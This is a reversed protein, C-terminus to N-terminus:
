GTEKLEYYLGGDSSNIEFDYLCDDNLQYMNGDDFDVKFEPTAANLFEQIQTLIAYSTEKSSEAQESYYRANDTDEGSRSGTGGHAYSEAETAFGKLEDKTNNFEEIASDFTGEREAEAKAFAAARESEAAKREEESAAREKEAKVRAAESGIVNDIKSELQELETLSGTYAGPTDIAEEVFFAGQYSTWKLTGDNAFARLQVLVTGPVQVMSNAITLILNFYDDKPKRRAPRPIPFPPIVIVKVEDTSDSTEGKEETDEAEPFEKDLTATDTSGNAYKLDLKFTLNSIDVGGATLRNLRFIRQETDGDYTTGINFEERPIILERNKVIIM